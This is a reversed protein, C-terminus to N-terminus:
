LIDNYLIKRAENVIYNHIKKVQEEANEDYLINQLYQAAEIVNDKLLENQANLIYTLYMQNHKHVEQLNKIIYMLQLKRNRIDEASLAVNSEKEESSENSIEEEPERRSAVDHSRNKSIDRINLIENSYDNASNYLKKLIEEISSM